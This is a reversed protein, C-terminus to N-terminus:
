DTVRLRWTTQLKQVNNGMSKMNEPLIGSLHRFSSLLSVDLNEEQDVVFGNRGFFERADDFSSFKNNEINHLDTFAKVNEEQKIASKHPTARVYIDSTVWYGGRDQLIKRIISCLKEKESQDFYILLGENIIAVKGSPLENATANFQDENLVNLPRLWVKSLDQKERFHDLMQQKKKIIDPLDTDFYPKGIKNSLELCRFNFGSSLELFCSVDLGELMQNIGLYRAEFHLAKSWFLLDQNSFDPMFSDPLSVLEAAERAFPISTHGKMLIISIASPSITCFDRM